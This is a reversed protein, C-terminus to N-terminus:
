GISKFYQNILIDGEVYGSNLLADQVPKIPSTTYMLYYGKEKAWVEIENLLFQFAGERKEKPININSVPYALYLLASDTQYATMCYCDGYKNSVVFVQQPLFSLHVIPFGHLTWLYEMKSYYDVTKEIRVKM